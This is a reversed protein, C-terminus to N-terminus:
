VRWHAEGFCHMVDVTLSPANPVLTGSPMQLLRRTDREDGRAAWPVRPQGADEQVALPWERVGRRVRVTRETRETHRVASGDWEGGEVVADGVGFAYRESAKAVSVLVRIAGADGGKTASTEEQETTEQEQEEEEEVHVADVLPHGDLRALAGHLTLATTRTRDAPVLRAALVMTRRRWADYAARRVLSVDDLATVAHAVADLLHRTTAVSMRTAVNREQVLVVLPCACRAESTAGGDAEDVDVCPAERGLADRLRVLVGRLTAADRGLAVGLGTVAVGPLRGLTHGKLGAAVTMAHLGAVHAHCAGTTGARLARTLALTRATEREAPTDARAEGRWVQADIQVGEAVGRLVGVRADDVADYQPTWGTRARVEAHADRLTAADACTVVIDADSSTFFVGSGVLTCPLGLWAELRAVLADHTTPADVEEEGVAGAAADAEAEADVESAADAQRAGGRVTKRAPAGQRVRGAGLASSPSTKSTRAELAKAKSEVRADDGVTADWTSVAAHLAQDRRRKLEVVARVMADDPWASAHEEVVEALLADRPAVWAHARRELVRALVRSLAPARGCVSRLQTVALGDDERGHLSGTSLLEVISRLACSKLVWETWMSPAVSCAHLRVFAGAFAIVDSLRVTVEQIALFRPSLTLVERTLAQKSGLVRKSAIWLLEDSIGFCVLANTLTQELLNQAIRARELVVVSEDHFVPRTLVRLTSMARSPPTALLAADMDMPAPLRWSPLFPLFENEFVVLRGDALRHWYLRDPPDTPRARGIPTYARVHRVDDLWRYVRVRRGVCELTEDDEAVVVRAVEATSPVFRRPRQMTVLGVETEELYHSFVGHHPFEHELWREAEMVLSRRVSFAMPLILNLSVQMADVTYVIVGTTGEFVHLAHSVIALEELIEDPYPLSPNRVLTALCLWLMSKGATVEYDYTLDAVRVLTQLVSLTTEDPDDGSM